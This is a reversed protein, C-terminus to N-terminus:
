MFRAPLRRERVPQNGNESMMAPTADEEHEERFEQPPQDESGLCKKVFSNEGKELKIRYNVPGM